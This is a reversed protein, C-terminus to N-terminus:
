TTATRLLIPLLLDVFDLFNIHGGILLCNSTPPSDRPHNTQGLVAAALSVHRPLRVKRSLEVWMVFPKVASSSNSLPARLTLLMVFRASWIGSTDVFAHQPHSLPRPHSVTTLAFFLSCFEICRNIDIIPSLSRHHCHHINLTGKTITQSYPLTTASSSSPPLRLRHRCANFPNTPM